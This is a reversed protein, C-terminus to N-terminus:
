LSPGYGKQSGEILYIKDEHEEVRAIGYALPHRDPQSLLLVEADDLGMYDQLEEILKKLKM